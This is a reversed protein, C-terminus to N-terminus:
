HKFIKLRFSRSFIVFGLMVIGFAADWLIVQWFTDMPLWPDLWRSYGGFLIFFRQVKDPWITWSPLVFSVAQILGNLVYILADFIMYDLLNFARQDSSSLALGV